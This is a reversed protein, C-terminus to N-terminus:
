RVEVVAEGEELPLPWIMDHTTESLGDFYQQWIMSSGCMEGNDHWFTPNHGSVLLLGERCHACHEGAKKRATPLAPHKTDWTLVPVPKTTVLTM